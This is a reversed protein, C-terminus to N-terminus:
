DLPGRRHGAAGPRPGASTPRCPVPVAPRGLSPSSRDRHLASPRRCADTSRANGTPRSRGTRNLGDWGTGHPPHAPERLALLSRDAPRDREDSGGFTPGRGGGFGAVSSVDTGRGTRGMEGFDYEECAVGRSRLEEMVPEIGKVTFGAATNKASGANPTQTRIFWTGGACQYWANGPMEESPALGLKEQYWSRARDFDSAPLVAYVPFEGLSGM